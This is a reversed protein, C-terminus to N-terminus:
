ERAGEAPDFTHDILSAPRENEFNILQLTVIRAPLTM